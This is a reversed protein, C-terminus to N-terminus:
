IQTDGGFCPRCSLPQLNKKIYPFNDSLLLDPMNLGIIWITHYNSSISAPASDKGINYIGDRFAHFVQNIFHICAEISVLVAFVAASQM